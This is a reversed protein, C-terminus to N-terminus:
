CRSLLDLLGLAHDGREFLTLPQSLAGSREVALEYVHGDYLAGPVKQFSRLCLVSPRPADCPDGLAAIKGVCCIGSQMFFKRLACCTEGLAAFHRTPHPVHGPDRRICGRWGLDKTTASRLFVYGSTREKPLIM